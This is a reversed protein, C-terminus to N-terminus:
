RARVPKEEWCVSWGWSGSWGALRQSGTSRFRSKPVWPRKSSREVARLRCSHADWCWPRSAAGPRPLRRRCRPRPGRRVGSVVRLAAPRRSDPSTTLRCPVARRRQPAPDPRARSRGSRTAPRRRDPRAHRRLLVHEIRVHDHFWELHRLNPTAAAAHSTCTPRATGPSRAPRVVAAVAAVRLWETIGGCAPCTSRCATSRAPRACAGSTTSTTATSARPSTPASRTASRACATSTTPPSRSRSGASTRPRAAQRMVRVAQKRTYGGNADVFLEADDGISRARRRADPGPRPRGRRGVVRRDQDEGAPDAPRAGLRALQDRLQDDDYTTFGGSGYVPVRERVAGLLRHLPLGLLRAKLDWLACTSRRSPTASWARGAPTACPGCWRTAPAASTWPTAASSSAPSCTARRGDACARPGYTWGTGSRTARVPAPVLVM